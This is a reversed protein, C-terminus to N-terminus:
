SGLDELLALLEATSSVPIGRSLLIKDTSRLAATEIATVAIPTKTHKNEFVAVYGSSEKLLYAADEKGDFRLRLEEPLSEASDRHISKYAGCVSYAAASLLCLLVAAKIRTLM